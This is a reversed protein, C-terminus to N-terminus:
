KRWEIPFMAGAREPTIKLGVLEAARALVPDRQAAMDEATPIIVEDPLVGVHELSKGDSMIVDADTISVAYPVIIDVGMQHSFHRSQMVAGASKDGIVKGRKELQILRAFLESASGSESDILVVLDGKFVKDGRTKAVMPKMERRGKLDAIKLDKDFFYGVLRELNKVLGGGNGRLDLILAKRKRFKDAMTDVDTDAMDFQPMKWIMMDEPTYYRHATLRDETQGERILNWIEDPNTMDLMRKGERVKALVTLQQEKGDPKRVAVQMGGQPRLTYYLYKFLWMNQRTPTRGDVAIIEDGPKLGKAEADSKPKVSIVFCKDGIAQAQWGYEVSSARQPPLLYTHSDNLEVLIQAIIGLIQGNSEAVKIREEAMKFRADLDMGRVSADYYNKRLDEKITRLMVQGRDRDSGSAKQAEPTLSAGSLSLVFLALGFVLPYRRAFLIREKM